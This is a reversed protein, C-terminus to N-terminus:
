DLERLNRMTASGILTYTTPTRNPDVDIMLSMGVTRVDATDIPATLEAGDNGYYQFLTANAAFNKVYAAITSTAEAQGVYSPPSGVPNTVGRYLTTGVLYYRVKEVSGDIDVDGYFTVSSTAVALLPYSGDAGSTAERLNQLASEVGRRANDTAATQQYIYANARYTFVIMNALMLGIVMTISIVVMMEIFTFGALTLARKKMEMNISYRTM